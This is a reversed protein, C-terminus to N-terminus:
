STKHGHRALPQFLQLKQDRHVVGADGAFRGLALLVLEFLVYAGPVALLILLKYSMPDFPM